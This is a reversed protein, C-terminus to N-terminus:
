VARHPPARRAEKRKRSRPMRAGLTGAWADVDEPPRRISGPIFDGSPRVDVLIPCSPTGILRLLKDPFIINIAPM